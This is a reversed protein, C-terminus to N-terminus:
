EPWRGHLWLWQEPRERIWGELIANVEAMMAAIDTHRDGSQPPALPPLHTIRFRAGGLREVRSPIVPCDFKIAFQALAPATMADRGFFPVPIGDNMKQDVLMGLHGGEGMLKIARRAGAAGKPILEGGGPWRHQFLREVWRNNPARYILHIPLGRHTASLAAIEWNAMHASFFIGPKGDVRLADIHEGGVVEVRRDNGSFRIADLNPFEFITRGLNDWMGRIVTEIELASKSPFARELNRQARCTIALRPGVARGLWGGLASAADLPLLRAFHFIGHATLAQAPHMILRRWLRAGSSRDAM